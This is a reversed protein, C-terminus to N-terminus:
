FDAAAPCAGVEHSPGAEATTGAHPVDMWAWDYFRAASSSSASASAFEGIMDRPASESTYCRDSTFVNRVYLSSCLQLSKLAFAHQQGQAGAFLASPAHLRVITWRNPLHYPCQVSHYTTKVETFLNSLTVRFRNGGSVIFDLHITFFNMDLPKVQLYIYEGTLDLTKMDAKSSPLQIFNNSSV